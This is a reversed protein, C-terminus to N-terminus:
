IRAVKAKDPNDWWIRSGCHPCPLKRPQKEFQRLCEFCRSLREPKAPAQPAPPPSFRCAPCRVRRVGDACSFGCQSCTFPKPEAKPRPPVRGLHRSLQRQFIARKVPWGRNLRGRIDAAPIGSIRSWEKATLTKDEYTILRQGRFM